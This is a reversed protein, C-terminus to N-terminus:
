NKEFCYPRKLNQCVGERFWIAELSYFYETFKIMKLTQNGTSVQIVHVVSPYKNEKNWTNTSYERTLSLCLLMVLLWAATNAKTCFEFMLNWLPWKSSLLYCFLVMTMKINSIFICTQKQPWALMSYRGAVTGRPSQIPVLSFWDTSLLARFHAIPQLLRNSMSMDQLAMMNSMDFLTQVLAHNM